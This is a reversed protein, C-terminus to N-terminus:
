FIKVNEPYKKELMLFGTWIVEILVEAARVDAGNGDFELKCFGDTIETKVRQGYINEFTCFAVQVLMSVACCVLSNGSHGRVEVSFRGKTKDNIHVETM